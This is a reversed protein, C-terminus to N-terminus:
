NNIEEKIWDYGKKELEVALDKKGSKVIKGDFLVHVHDPIIYDLLRQYHTIIVVANDKKKLKNVGSAVIKLADIDLGSDTEDLIALTPELMAMQFIENRKKEGGSFGDNISRSLFKRDIGLMSCKERLLKLMQSAPMDKEGRAKRTENIATKIFNTITVGPIEIPYQFSMFIGKHAREEASLEDISNDNFLMEGKTIEYDEKGAIVSALTSKGSGNPGMIAHIEGAKINLNIGNLIKKDEIKAHLNNIKLM